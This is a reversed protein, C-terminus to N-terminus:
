KYSIAGKGVLREVEREFNDDPNVSYEAGTKLLYGNEGNENNDRFRLYARCRGRNQNLLRKLEKLLEETSSDIKLQIYVERLLRQKAESLPFIEEAIVKASNEQKDVIGEIMVPLDPIIYLSYNKLVDPRVIVEFTGSFDEIKVFAMIDKNRTYIKRIEAVNGGVRIRKRDPLETINQSDVKTLSALLNKYQDLPHGSIYFGLAEKEYNLKLEDRWEELKPYSALSKELTKESGMMGFLNLQGSAIDKQKHHGYEMAKDLVAFNQSRLVGFSDFAGAKVMNEIVRKNLTSMEVKECFDFISDFKGHERRAELISNIATEGVNKIAALGFRIGEETPTFNRESSNVDPPLVKIGMNKCDNIYRLVKDSNDSESSILAAMYEDPYNAKLFATRYALLAYATSHSKNFGYEAFSQMQNFIDEAIKIDIKRKQAGDLFKQRHREMEKYKKKSMAKRLLDAEGLTYGALAVATQIVQEQYVFVGYTEKLIEELQPVQYDVKEKGHKRKIYLDVLGSGLPGPRYLANLAILEKFHDPLFKKLLEKMGSSELQFVGDTNGKQLLEYTKKDDMPIENIHLDIGKTNKIHKRTNEIVTLTRLGLFDMKLLGIKGLDKMGFQTMFEDNSGRYLPVYETLPKESIVIGAAHTSAHRILGELTKSIEFLNAITKDNETLEKLKPEGEIADKLTINLFAPILKAIRDVESYPINLARGVDRIVARAQMTGFTIIQAVNERGYKETVYDIVEQRRDMCFDIDIDPLELRELNLFREFILGYKLPDMDMIGLAYTVVSGAASGRGPGIPINRERAFKIFDWVILFYGSFGMKEITELEYNLRDVYKSRLDDYEAEGMMDRYPKLREDLGIYALEKLYEEVSKGKPPSFNPLHYEDFTLSLDCREAIEMTAKLAHPIESFRKYMEEQSKFYFEESAFRMRNEDEITKGTQICLLIEHAFADERNLYHCDNTAVIPIELKRAMEILDKNVLKQERLGQDQIEIYFNGDEFIEKYEAASKFAEERQERLLNKTIEGQLCASLGILGKSYERLLEKDIRPKYYFGETHGLSVLKILNKYGVADRALLILHHPNSNNSNVTKDFRSSPAVYVECGIIPKIGAKKMEQYFVIAGCINGHDTLAIAPYNLEQCKRSLDKIRIGGDLISYESHNHLHVFQPPTTM